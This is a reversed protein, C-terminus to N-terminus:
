THCAGSFKVFSEFRDQPTGENTGPLQKTNM